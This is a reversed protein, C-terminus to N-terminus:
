LNQKKNNFVIIQNNINSLCEDLDSKSSSLFPIFWVIKKSKLFIKPQLFRYKFNGSKIKLDSKTNLIIKYGFLFTTFHISKLNELRVSPIVALKFNIASSSISLIPLSENLCRLFVKIRIFLIILQYISIIFMLFFCFYIDNPNLFRFWELNAATQAFLCFPYIWALIIVSVALLDFYLVSRRLYFDNSEIESLNKDV